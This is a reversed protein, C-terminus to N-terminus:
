GKYKFLFEKESKTLGEYGYKSIKDLIADVKKQNEARRRNYEDDSLPRSSGSSPSQKTKAFPKRKLLGAIDHRMAVVYLWGTLAGGLHAIHGGANHAPISLLDIIVFAIALWKLKVQFTRVLWIGVEQNPVYAAVAVFVGLVAASAGVLTSVQMRGIPFVNYVLLYLVAGVIGSVFYIWGFRKGGLYRCCMTGGWFLMLMNFLIHWLGDHLFMYTLLTWPRRLLMSWQSSLALWGYWGERASGSPMAYLYDVLPFLLMLVWMSVNVIVLVSLLTGSKLFGSLQNGVRQNRM